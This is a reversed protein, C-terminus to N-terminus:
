AHLISFASLGSSRGRRPNEGFISERNEAAVRLEIKYNRLFVESKTRNAVRM